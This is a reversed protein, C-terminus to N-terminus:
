EAIPQNAKLGLEIIFKHSGGFVVNLAQSVIEEIRTKAQQRAYDSTKQLLIQVLDFIGLQKESEIKRVEAAEKQKQILDRKAIQAVVKDRVGKIDLRAKNLKYTYKAAGPVTPTEVPRMPPRVTTQYMDLLGM